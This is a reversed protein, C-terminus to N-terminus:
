YKYKSYKRRTLNKDKEGTEERECLSGLIVQNEGLSM